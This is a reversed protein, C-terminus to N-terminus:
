DANGYHAVPHLAAQAGGNAGQQGVQRLAVVHHGDGMWWGGLGGKLFKFFREDAQEALGVQEGAVVPNSARLTYYSHQSLQIFYM